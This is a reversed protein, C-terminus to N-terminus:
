LSLVRSPPNTDYADEDATTLASTAKSSIILYTDLSPHFFSSFLLALIFSLVTGHEHASLSDRLNDLPSFNVERVGLSKCKGVSFFTYLCVPFIRHLPLRPQCPQSPFTDAREMHHEAKLNWYTSSTKALVVHGVTLGDLLTLGSSIECRSYRYEQYSVTQKWVGFSM